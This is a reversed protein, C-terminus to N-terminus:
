KLNRIASILEWTFFAILAVFLLSYWGLEGWFSFCAYIFFADILFWFLVKLM